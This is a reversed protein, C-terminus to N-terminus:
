IMMFLEGLDRAKSLRTLLLEILMCSNLTNKEFWKYNPSHYDKGPALAILFGAIDNKVKIVRFYDAMELFQTMDNLTISSVAPLAHQNLDHIHPLDITDTKSIHFGM